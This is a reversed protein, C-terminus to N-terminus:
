HILQQLNVNGVAFAKLWNIKECCIGAITLRMMVIGGSYVIYLSQIIVNGFM